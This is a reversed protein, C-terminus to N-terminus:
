SKGKPGTGGGSYRQRDGASGGPYPESSGRWPLEGCLDQLYERDLYHDLPLPGASNTGSGNLNHDTGFAIEFCSKLGILRRMACPLSPGMAKHSNQRSTKQKARIRMPTRQGRPAIRPMKSGKVIGAEYAQGTEALEEVGEDAADADQSLGQADGSQGASDSCVQGRDSGLEDLRAENDRLNHKVM